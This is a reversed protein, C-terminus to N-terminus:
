ARGVAWFFTRRWNGPVVERPPSPIQRSSGRLPPPGACRPFRRSQNGPTGPLSLSNGLLAASLSM